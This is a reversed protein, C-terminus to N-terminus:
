GWLSWAVALWLVIVIAAAGGLRAAASMRLLSRPPAPRLPVKGHM